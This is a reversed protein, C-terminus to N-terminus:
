KGCQAHLWAQADPHQKWARNLIDWAIIAEERSGPSYLAPLIKPPKRHELFYAHAHGNQKRAQSLAEVAGDLDGSLFRELLYGWNWVASVEREDYRKLLQGAIEVSDVALYLTLLKYRVGQNDNPNLELLAEYEVMAEDLREAEMLRQALQARARMYPRTELIGWFLGKDRKFTKKGLNEEGQAVLRRLMRIEVDLAMPEFDILGMWADVNTPDLEVAQLFLELAKEMDASEWADYVLEQAERGKRGKGAGGMMREMRQFIQSLEANKEEPTMSM